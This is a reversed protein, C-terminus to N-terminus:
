VEAFGFRLGLRLENPKQCIRRPKPLGPSISRVTAVIKTPPRSVHLSGIPSSPVGQTQLLPHRTPVMPLWSKTMASKGWVSGIGTAAINIGQSDGVALILSFDAGEKKGLQSPSILMLEEWISELIVYRDYEAFAAIAAKSIVAAIRRAPLYAGKVGSTTAVFGAARIWCRSNSEKVKLAGVFPYKSERGLMYVPIAM